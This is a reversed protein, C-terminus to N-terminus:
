SLPTAHPLSPSQDGGNNSSGSVVVTQHEIVTAEAQVLADLDQKTLSAAGEIDKALEDTKEFLSEREKEPEHVFCDIENKTVMGSQLLAAEVNDMRPAKNDTRIEQNNNKKNFFFIASLVATIARGLNSFIKSFFGPPKVPPIPLAKPISLKEVATSQKQEAYAMLHKKLRLIQINM